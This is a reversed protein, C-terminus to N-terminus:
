DGRMQRRNYLDEILALFPDSASHIYHDLAQQAIDIAQSADDAQQSVQLLKAESERNRGKFWAMLKKYM